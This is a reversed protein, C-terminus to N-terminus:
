VQTKFFCLFFKKSFAEFVKKYFDEIYRICRLLLFREKLLSGDYFQDVLILLLFTDRPMTSLSKVSPYIIVFDFKQLYTLSMNKNNFQIGVKFNLNLSFIISQPDGRLSIVGLLKVKECVSQSVSDCATAFLAYTEGSKENKIKFHTRFSCLLKFFNM